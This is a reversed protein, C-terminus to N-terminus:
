VSPQDSKNLVKFLNCSSETIGFLLQMFNAVAHLGAPM